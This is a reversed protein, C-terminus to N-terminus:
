PDIMRGKLYAKYNADNDVRVIAVLLAHALCNNEAKIEEISLKPHAILSISSGISKIGRGFGVPMKVSHVPVVLPKLHLFLSRSDRLCV